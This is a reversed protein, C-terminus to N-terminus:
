EGDGPVDTLEVEDLTELEAPSLSRVGELVTGQHEAIRRDVLQSLQYAIAGTQHVSITDPLDQRTSTIAVGQPTGDVVAVGVEFSERPNVAPDAYHKKLQRLMKHWGLVEGELELGQVDDETLGMGRGGPAFCRAYSLLATTWLSEVVVPDPEPVNLQPVLRECCLLVTQLDDFIAALDALASAAPSGVRRVTRPTESPATM